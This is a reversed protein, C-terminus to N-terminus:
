TSEWCNRDAPGARHTEGDSESQGSGADTTDYKLLLCVGVEMGPRGQDKWACELDKPLPPYEIREERGAVAHGVDSQAFRVVIVLDQMDVEGLEGVLGRGHESEGNGLVAGFPYQQLGDLGGSQDVNPEGGLQEAELLVAGVYAYADSTSLSLRGLHGAVEYAGVAGV